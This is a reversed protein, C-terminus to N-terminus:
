EASQGCTYYLPLLFHWCYKDSVIFFEVNVLIISCYLLM